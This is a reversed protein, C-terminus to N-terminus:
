FEDAFVAPRHTGLYNDTHMLQAKTVRDGNTLTNAFTEITSFWCSLEPPAIDTSDTRRLVDRFLEFEVYINLWLKYQATLHHPLTIPLLLQMMALMIIPLAVLTPNLTIGAINTPLFLIAGASGLFYVVQLTCKIRSLLVRRRLYNIRTEAHFQLESIQFRYDSVRM